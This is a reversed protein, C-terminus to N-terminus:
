EEETGSGARRRVSLVPVPCHRFVKEANSGALTRALNSRGKGGMVVLDIREKEVTELIEEFPVGVKVVLKFREQKGGDQEAVIKELQEKRTEKNREIYKDLFNEGPFYNSASRVASIDRSNIVNILYIQDANPAIAMANALIQESYDSFDICILVRTFTQM